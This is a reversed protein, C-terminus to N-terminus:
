YWKGFSLCAITNCVCGLILPLSYLLICTEINAGVIYGTVDFNIRIFKGQPFFFLLKFHHQHICIFHTGITQILVVFECIQLFQWKQHDQCKWLGGPHPQGAPATERAGGLSLISMFVYELVSPPPLVYHNLHPQHHTLIFSINLLFISFHMKPSSFWNQRNYYPFLHFLVPIRPWSHGGLLMLM